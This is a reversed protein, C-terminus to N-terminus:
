KIFIHQPIGLFVDGAELYSLTPTDGTLRDSVDLAM